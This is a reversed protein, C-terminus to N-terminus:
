TDKDSLQLPNEFNGQIPIIYKYNPSDFDNCKGNDVGFYMLYLAKRLNSFSVGFYGTRDAM